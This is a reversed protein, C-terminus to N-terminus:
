DIYVNFLVNIVVTDTGQLILYLSKAFLKIARKMLLVKICINIQFREDSLWGRSTSEVSFVASIVLYIYPRYLTDLLHDIYCCDKIVATNRDIKWLWSGYRLLKM